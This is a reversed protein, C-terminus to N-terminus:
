VVDDSRDSPTRPLLGRGSPEIVWRSARTLKTSKGVNTKPLLAHDSSDTAVELGIDRVEGVTIALVGWRDDFRDGELMAEPGKGLEQFAAAIGVSVGEEDSRSRFANSQPVVKDTAGEALKCRDPPVRRWLIADDSLNASSEVM